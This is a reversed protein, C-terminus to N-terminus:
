DGEVFLHKIWGVFVKASSSEADLVKATIAQGMPKGPDKQWALYTHIKAKSRHVPAYKNLSRSELSKLTADSEDMLVDKKGALTMVFDELMGNSRNNPMLWLGFTPYDDNLANIVTGDESLSVDAIDYKGTKALIRCFADYRGQLDVDADMVVGIRKYMTPTTLRLSLDRLLNEIGDCDIVSFVEPVNYHELLSWIVHQDDKGEVLLISNNKEKM